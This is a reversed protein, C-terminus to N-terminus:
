YDIANMSQALTKLDSIERAVVDLYEVKQLEIANKFIEIEKSYDGDVEDYRALLSRTAAEVDAPLYEKNSGWFLNHKNDPSYFMDHGIKVVEPSFFLVYWEEVNNIQWIVEDVVYQVDGEELYSVCEEMLMINEQAAEHPVIPREYMLGLIKDQTDKFIALNTKNMERAAAWIEELDEESAGGKLLELYDENLADVAEFASVAAEKYAEVAEIYGDYDVEYVRATEEDIADLLREYHATYDLQLAPTQDIYIGFAGYFEISFRFVDENYTEKTDFNSHYIEKYFPFVEEMGKDLLFGNVTSPVGAVYYSFDDSYTYTQYGDTLVGEPFCNEPEPSPEENVFRDIMTYMEPASYVMTYDDFEYAPLEFNIFSLAKGVWEPRAENIMRWAGITWDFQSNSAGWEESGHICFVIDREPVYESEIMAKAIGLAGGVAASNDQFSTFYMDYHAGYIIMEDPNKGPIRGVVNYSTGGPEVINDVKLTAIISGEQLREQFYESDRPTISVCPIGTPGCIDNANYAEDSIESFGEISAALVGAAGQHWAELMPMTVWWDDRQNVDCLVIKGTVDIDEYDKMTGDGVYVVEATIGEAPTGATAYSHLLIEQEEGEISISAGNFQWKDVNVGVKEVDTLGIDKMVDVLYDAAKHEADSGATRTGIPSDHYEPNEALEVALDYAFELDVADVFATYPDEIVQDESADCGSLSISTFLMVLALLAIWKKSRM